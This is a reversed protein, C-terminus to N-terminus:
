GSVPLERGLVSSQESRNGYRWESGNCNGKRTKNERAMLLLINLKAFSSSVGVTRFSLMM